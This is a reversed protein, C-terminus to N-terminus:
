MTQVLRTLFYIALHLDSESIKDPENKILSPLGKPELVWVDSHLSSECFWGPFLVVTKIPYIKGTSEYLNKAIWKANAQVQTIPDRDPKFGNILLAKGNFTVTPSGKQPKSITKTEAVFIGKKSLIVHDINFKNAVIDHIIVDGQQKLLDLQEAVIREGDRGQQLSKIERYIQVFRYVSWIIVIITGITGGIPNFPRPSFWQLWIYGVFVLLFFSLLLAQLLGDWKNNILEDISQGPVHLPKNPLPSRKNKM